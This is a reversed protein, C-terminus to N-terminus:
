RYTNQIEHKELFNSKVIFQKENELLECYATTGYCYIVKSNERELASMVKKILVTVEEKAGKSVIVKPLQDKKNVTIKINEKNEFPANVKLILKQELVNPLSDNSNRQGKKKMQM